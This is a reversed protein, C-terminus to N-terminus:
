RAREEAAPNRSPTVYVTKQQTFRVAGPPAGKVRWVNKRLTYDVPVNDGGSAKSHGAALRAAFLLTDFPVERGHALVVVHSGQWGQAHLWLDRSRALKFTVEDNERANRGVVVTFGHPAGYRLGPGRDAARTRTPELEEILTDLEEDSRDRLGDLRERLAEEESALRAQRRRAEEARRERKRAQAYRREANAAADLAPDLALERRAGDFDILEVTTAGDPVQHAYALLLDGEGRLRAADEAAAVTREADRMRKRALRLRDELLRRARELRAERRERLRQTALDPRQLTEEVVGRPDRVLEALADLLRELEAGELRTDREVGARAALARTLEPGVGDVTKPLAAPTRGRLAAALTARQASRPDHKDYPPPPRYTLGRRVQRYRNVGAPVERAAGLITEEEDLLILNANRGTLEAVLTVPPHEVFGGSAGFRLRTVRDLAPQEVAALPGAARAALLEQFATRGEGAPPPDDDRLELRPHPPRDLLWLAGAPVLPLVYTHGDLFRWSLREAPLRPRLTDLVQAILLGEM